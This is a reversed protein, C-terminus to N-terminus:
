AFFLLFFNEFFFAVRQRVRTESHRHSCKHVRFILSPRVPFFFKKKRRPTFTLVKGEYIRGPEDECGEGKGKPMVPELQPTFLLPPSPPPLLFGFEAAWVLPPNPPGRVFAASDHRLM